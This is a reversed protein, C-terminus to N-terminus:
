PRDGGSTQARSPMCRGTFGAMSVLSDINWCDALVEAARAEGLLKSSQSLFKIDLEGDSLPRMVSGRCHEIRVQLVKGDQMTIKAECQDMALTQDVEAVITERLRGVAPDHVCEDSEEDLGAKGFILAAAAWHFLSNHSQMGTKPHRLGTLQIAVPNVLLDVRRINQLGYGPMAILELCADIIPHAVIGCPYPKYTLTSLEFTNGLEHLAAALNPPAAFVDALGRAGEISTSSSTFGEHALLAATVGARAATGPMFSTSDSGHVVRIGAAQAAATGIAWRLQQETLELLKGAAVASGIGGVIGTMFLGINSRAPGGTLVKGIRCCAEIGLLLAHVFDAGSKGNREAVALAAAIVPSGPHVVTSPHTDDYVHVSASMSNLLAALMADVKISRGLVSAESLGSAPALVGAAKTLTEHNAGGLVCGAWNVLARRAEHVVGAPINELRSQVVFEAIKGTIAADVTGHTEDM